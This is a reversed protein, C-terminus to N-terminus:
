LKKRGRFFIPNLYNLLLMRNKVRNWLMSVRRHSNCGLLRITQSCARTEGDEKGCGSSTETANTQRFYPIGWSNSNINHPSCHYAVRNKLIKGQIKLGVHGPALQWEPQRLNSTNCLHGYPWPPSVYPFWGTVEGFNSKKQSRNQLVHQNIMPKFMKAQSPVKVDTM